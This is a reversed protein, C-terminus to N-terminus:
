LETRHGGPLGAGGSDEEGAEILGCVGCSSTDQMTCGSASYHKWRSGCTRCTHTHFQIEDTEANM